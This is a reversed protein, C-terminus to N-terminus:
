AYDEWAKPFDQHLIRGQKDLEKWFTTGPLPTPKTVQLVDINADKVFALTSHFTSRDDEDSGLIFGGLIVIGEKRIGHILDKYRGAKLYAQNIRKGLSALSKENVSEMGIFVVKLGAKAALQILERDEGFLISAQALYNRRIRKELIQSFLIKTWELDKKGFGVLNDDAILVWKQPIQELEEVVAEVPRRRVRGGNFTTVSCFKCNM